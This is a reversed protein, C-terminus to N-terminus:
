NTVVISFSFSTVEGCDAAQVTVNHTATTDSPQPTGSIIYDSSNYGLWNPKDPVTFVFDDNNADSIGFQFMFQSGVTATMTDEPFTEFVPPLNEDVSITFSYDASLNVNPRDDTITLLVTESSGIDSETPTGSLQGLSNVNLWAISEDIVCTVVDGDPDNWNVDYSYQCGHHISQIVNDTNTFVPADNPDVTITFSETATLSNGARNDDLTISFTLTQNVYSTPLYGSVTGNTGSSNPIFTLESDLNSVSAEMTSYDVSNPDSWYITWSLSKEEEWTQDSTGTFSPAENGRVNITFSKTIELGGQDQLKLTFSTSPNVDATSPTGTLKNVDITLWGPLDDSSLTHSGGQDVDSWTIESSQFLIGEDATTGISTNGWIPSENVNTIEVSASLIGKEETPSDDTIEMVIECRTVSGNQSLITEYDINASPLLVLKWTGLSDSDEMVTFLTKDNGNIKQSQIKVLKIEDDPNTDVVDISGLSKNTGQLNEPLRGVGDEEMGEEWIMSGKPPSAKLDQTNGPYALEVDECSLLFLYLLLSTFKLFHKLRLKM